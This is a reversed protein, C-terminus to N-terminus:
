VIETVLMAHDEGGALFIVAVGEKGSKIFDKRIM